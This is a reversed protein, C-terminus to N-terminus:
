PQGSDANRSTPTENLVTRSEPRFFEHELVAQRVTILEPGSVVMRTVKGIILGPWPAM